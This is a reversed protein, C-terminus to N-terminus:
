RYVKLIEHVAGEQTLTSKYLNFSDVKFIIPKVMIKKICEISKRKDKIFKVRFLTLHPHFRNDKKFLSGLANDIDKQLENIRDHKETSEIGTWIVRIYNESPFFGINSLSIELPLLERLKVAKLMEKIKEIDKDEVEGLFKLTLHFEKAKTAKLNDKQTLLIENQIRILEQKVEEPLPIAIFLRM